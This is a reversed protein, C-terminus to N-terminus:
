KRVDPIEIWADVLADDSAGRREADDPEERSTAGKDKGVRSAAAAKRALRELEKVYSSEAEVNPTATDTTSRATRGDDDSPTSVMVYRLSLDEKEAPAGRGAKPAGIGGGMRPAGIGGAEAPVPTTGPAGIPETGTPKPEGVVGTIPPSGESARVIDRSSMERPTLRRMVVGPSDPSPVDIIIPGDGSVTVLPGSWAMGKSFITGRVTVHVRYDYAPVYDAQGTFLKWVRGEAQDGFAWRFRVVNRSRDVGKATTGKPILEVEVLEAESQLISALIIPGVELTGARDARVEHVKETTPTGTPPDLLADDQEIQVRLFPFETAGPPERLAVRRRNYTMSPDWGAPPNKVEGPNWRVWAPNFSADPPDSKQFTAAKWVISGDEGPYGAEAVSFAVPDGVWNKTPDGYDVVPKFLRTIKRGIGGLVQRKFYKQEAAPDAKIDEYFGQLTSSITNPQIYRFNRTEEYSVNLRTTDRRYKLALGVGYSFLSSLTGGKGAEAPPVVPAPVFIVAKAQETFQAVIVDIRKNVEEEMKDAGPLTGDVDVEVKIGGNIRLNNFEAKIDASFWALKANVAASFHEFVRDWDGTIKIRMRQSWMPLQMAMIVNLPSYAGHFGTWIVESPLAGMVASFANEGGTVSGPGQGFMKFGWPDVSSPGRFGKVNHPVRLPDLLRTRSSMVSRPAGGAPADGGGPLPPVAGTMDPVVNSMSVVNAVIPCIAFRPAVPTRWGWYMDDKGKFKALLQDQAQKLVETPYRSTVTLNLVGFQTESNGLGVNTDEDFVGVYHTHSFKYDGVDGKRALRVEGPMWYYAPAQGSAQLEQNNRDALYLITYQEGSTGNVVFEEFRGTYVPGVASVM